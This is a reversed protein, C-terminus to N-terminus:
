LTLSSLSPGRRRRIIGIGTGKSNSAEDMNLTWEELLDSQTPAGLTFEAIFDTLIQGKITTRSEYKIDYPKLETACKAIRGTAQLNEVISKLPHKTLMVIQFSQYHKPKRSIVFLALVMMKMRQYRIKADLLFKNIYYVPEQVDEEERVLAGSV